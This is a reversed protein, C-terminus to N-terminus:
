FAQPIWIVDGTTQTRLTTLLALQCVLTLEMHIHMMQVLPALQAGLLLAPEAFAIVPKVHHPITTTVM